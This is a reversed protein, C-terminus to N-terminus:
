SIEHDRSSAGESAVTNLAESARTNTDDSGLHVVYEIEQGVGAPTGGNRVHDLIGQTPPNSLFRVAGGSEYAMARDTQVSLRVPRDRRPDQGQDGEADPLLRSMMIADVFYLLGLSEVLSVAKRSVVVARTERLVLLAPASVDPWHKHFEVALQV